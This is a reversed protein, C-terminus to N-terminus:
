NFVAEYEAVEGDAGVPVLFVSEMTVAEARLTYMAQPLAPLPATFYLSFPARKRVAAQRARRRENVEFPLAEELTMTTTGGDPLTVEFKTGVLPKATEITLEALDMLRNEGTKIASVKLM